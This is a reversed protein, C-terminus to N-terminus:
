STAAGRTDIIQHTICETTDFLLKITFDTTSFEQETMNMPFDVFVCRPARIMVYNGNITRQSYFYGEFEIPTPNEGYTIISSKDNISRVTFIASDGTTMGITGSGGTLELGFTTIDTPSGTTITLASATIKLSDDEFGEDTGNRFAMDTVQYVDVTTSSAAVVLYTGDKLEDESGSKVGVSAIGTSADSVSTGIRNTIAGSTGSFSGAFGGTEASNNVVDAGALTHLFPNYEKVTVAIENTIVGREVAVANPNSGGTLEVLDGTHTLNANGIVKITGYPVDTSKNVPTFNHIGFLERPASLNSTAM